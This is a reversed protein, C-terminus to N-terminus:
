ASTAVTIKKGMLFSRPSTCFLSGGEVSQRQKALREARYDFSPGQKVKQELHLPNENHDVITDHEISTKLAKREFPVEYPHQHHHYVNHQTTPQLAYPNPGQPLIPQNQFAASPLPPLILGNQHDPLMLQFNKSFEGVSEENSSDTFSQQISSSSESASSSHLSNVDYSGYDPLIKDPKAPAHNSLSVNHNNRMNTRNHPFPSNKMLSQQKASGRRFSKNDNKGFGKNKLEGNKRRNSGGRCGRPRHSRRRPPKENGRYSESSGSNGILDTTSYMTQDTM